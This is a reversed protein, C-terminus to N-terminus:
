LTDLVASILKQEAARLHYQFTSAAIDRTGALEESTADRPWEFFGGYYATQVADLQKDTFQEVLRDRFTERTDVPTTQERRALLEAEPYAHQLEEVLTRVSVDGTLVVSLRTAGDETTLSRVRADLGRLVEVLPPVAIRIQYLGSEAEAALEQASRVTELAELRDVADDVISGRLRLFVRLGGDDDPIAGEFEVACGLEAAIRNTFLREDDISLDVETREGTVIADVRDVNRLAYGITQGLETLVAQEREDFINGDEAHIVLVSDITEGRVVPVAAISRYGERLADSRHPKWAPADLVNQAVQVSGTRFATEVLERLPAASESADLHDVFEPGTGCWEGPSVTGDTPDRDGIWAFAYQDTAAFQECVGARIASRNTSRVLTQNIQRIIDNLRNLQELAENQRQLQQERDLLTAERAARDLATDLNERILGAIQQGAADLPETATSGAVLVGHTEVPFVLASELELGSGLSGVSEDDLIRQEGDVFADWISGEASQSPPTEDVSASWALPVLTDTGDFEYVISGDADLLEDATEAAIEAIEKRGEARTMAQTRDHLRTLMQEHRYRDTIDKIVTLVAPEGEYAIPRSTTEIHRVEGTFTRVTQEDSTIEVKGRQVKAATELTEEVDDEPVFSGINTGLLEGRDTSEVLDVMADNLYVIEGDAHVLIPGPSMEVLTRYRRENERIRERAERLETIDVVVAQGVREGQYWGATTKVQVHRIEGDDRVLRFRTPGVTEGGEIVEELEVEAVAHDDPHIFDFISRGSLADLSDLGLLELVADNGWVTTGDADFLNIPAPSDEVLNRYREEKQRLERERKKRDTIDQCAGEIYQQGDVDSLQFTASVWLESGDLLRLKVEQDRLIREHQLMEVFEDRADPEAYLESAETAVVEAKSDAGVLSVFADNVAVFQGDLTSRFAGVPLQEIISRDHDGTWEGASLDPDARARARDVANRIRTEAVLAADSEADREVVDTASHGIAESATVDCGATLVLVFPISPDLDRVADLFAVGDMEPLDVSSLICHIDGAASLVDIGEEASPRSVVDLRDSWDGIATETGLDLDTGVRLVRIPTAM